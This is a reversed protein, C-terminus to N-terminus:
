SPGERKLLRPTLFLAAGYFALAMFMTFPQGYRFDEGLLKAGGIGLLPYVIWVLERRSWRRGAWALAVALVALVATRGTAVFARGAQEGGAAVLPGELAGAVLGAAAWVVLGATMTEVVRDLEPNAGPRATALLSAYCVAAVAAVSASVLTLATRPETPDALLVDYAYTVLNAEVAAALLYLAGHFQLTVRAFRGGIAITVLALVLWVVTLAPGALLLRSGSLVLAVALAMYAHFNLGRGARRDVFVLATAYSAVGLGLSVVGVLAPSAGSASLVRWASGFGIVLTAVVQVMEFGTVPLGRLLTRGGLGSLYVVPLALAMLVVVQAPLASGERVAAFSLALVALDVPLAPLWRLIPWHQKIALVEVGAAVVLLVGTFVLREQTGFLLLLPTAVSAAVLLAAVAALRNRVAVFLGLGLFVLIATGAAAPTLLDLRASTEWILPYAIFAAALGHFLASQRRDARASREAQWLWWAAYLLGALPGVSAPLTGAETLARFLFGGGIAMLTRGALAISGEPLRPLSLPPAIEPESASIPATPEVSEPSAEVPGLTAGSAGELRALREGMETLERELKEVRTSLTESEGIHDEFSRAIM